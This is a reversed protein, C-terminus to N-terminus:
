LFAAGVVFALLAVFAFWVWKTIRDTELRDEAERPSIDNRETM